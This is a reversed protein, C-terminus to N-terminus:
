IVTILNRVLSANVKICGCKKNIPILSELTTHNTLVCTRDAYDYMMALEDRKLAAPLIKSIRLASTYKVKIEGM